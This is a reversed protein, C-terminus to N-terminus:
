GVASAQRQLKVNWLRGTINGGPEIIDGEYFLMDLRASLLNLLRFNKMPPCM